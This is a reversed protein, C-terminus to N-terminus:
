LAIEEVVVGGGSPNPLPICGLSPSPRAAGHFVKVQKREGEFAGRHVMLAKLMKRGECCMNELEFDTPPRFLLKAASATFKNDEPHRDLRALWATRAAAVFGTRMESFALGVDSVGLEVMLKHSGQGKGLDSLSGVTPFFGYLVLERAFVMPHFPGLGDFVKKGSAKRQLWAAFEPVTLNTPVTTTAFAKLLASFQTMSVTQFRSRFLPQAKNARFWPAITAVLAPADMIALLDNHSDFLRLVYQLDLQTVILSLCLLRSRITSESAGNHSRWAVLLSNIKPYTELTVRDLFPQFNPIRAKDFPTTMSGGHERKLFGMTREIMLPMLLQLPDVGCLPEGFFATKKWKLNGNLYATISPSDEFPTKGCLRKADGSPESSTRKM